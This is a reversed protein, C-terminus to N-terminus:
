PRTDVVQGDGAGGEVPAYGYGAVVLVDHVHPDVGEGVVQGTDAVGVGVVLQEGLVSGGVQVEDTLVDGSEM